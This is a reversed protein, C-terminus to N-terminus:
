SARDIRAELERVIYVRLASTLSGPRDKAAVSSCLDHLNQKNEDCLRDLAAWLEPELRVSTRRRDIRINRSKLSSVRPEVLLSPIPCCSPTLGQLVGLDDADQILRDPSDILFKNTHIM